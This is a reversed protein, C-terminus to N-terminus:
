KVRQTALASRTVMVENGGIDTFLLKVQSKVEREKAVQM